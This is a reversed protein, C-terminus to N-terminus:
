VYVEIKPLSINQGSGIITSLEAAAFAADITDIEIYLKGGDQGFYIIVYGTIAGGTGSTIPITTYRTGPQIIGSVYTKNEDWNTNPFKIALFGTSQTLEPKEITNQLETITVPDTGNQKILATYIGKITPTKSSYYPPQQKTQIPM